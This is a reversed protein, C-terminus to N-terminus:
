KNFQYSAKKTLLGNSLDLYIKEALTLAHVWMKKKVM